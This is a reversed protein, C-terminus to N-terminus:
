KLTDKVSFLSIAHLVVGSSNDKLVESDEWYLLLSKLELDMKCLYM